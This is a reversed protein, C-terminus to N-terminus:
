DKDNFLAEAKMATRDLKAEIRLLHAVIRTELDKVDAIAAYSKAVELKFGMLGERLQSIRVDLTDQLAHITDETDKKHRLMLWFLGSLVPLEVVTIWWIAADNIVTM